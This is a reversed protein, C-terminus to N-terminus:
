QKEYSSFSGGDIPFYGSLFSLKSASIQFFIKKSLTDNDFIIRNTYQGSSIVLGVESSVTTDMTINYHGKKILVGNAFTSYTTDTFQYISGNGSPYDIIPTMGAQVQQLEWSGILASSITNLNNDKKCGDLIFITFTLCIFYIFVKM